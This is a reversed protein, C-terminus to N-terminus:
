KDAVWGEATLIELKREIGGRNYGGMQGDSRIVRHCPVTPDYNASMINAVARSAKSNGAKEAVAKYTLVQGVPIQRVIEKVTETFSDKTKQLQNSKTPM